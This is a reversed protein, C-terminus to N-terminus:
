ELEEGAVGRGRGRNKSKVRAVITVEERGGALLRYRQTRDLGPDAAELRAIGKAVEAEMAQGKGCFNKFTAVVVAGPCVLGGQLLGLLMDTLAEPATNMDSVVLDAAGIPEEAQLVQSPPSGDGPREGAVGKAGSSGGVRGGGGGGRRQTMEWLLAGHSDQIKSKFHKVNTLALVSPDMEAPDVSLVRGCRSALFSSWGGPASGVDIATWGDGYTLGARLTVEKLKYYARSVASQDQNGEILMGVHASAESLGFLTTGRVYVLSMVHSFRGAQREREMGQFHGWSASDEEVLREEMVKPLCQVRVRLPPTAAMARSPVDVAVATPPSPVPSPQAPTEPTEAQMPPGKTPGKEQPADETRAEWALSIAAAMESVKRGVDELSSGTGDGVIYVRAVARCIVPDERCLRSFGPPDKAEILLAYQNNRGTGTRVVGVVCVEGSAGMVAEIYDALRRRYLSETQLAVNVRDVDLDNMSEPPPHPYTCDSGWPCPDRGWPDGIWFNHRKCPALKHKEIHRQPCSDGRRCDNIHFFRCPKRRDVGERVVTDEEGM